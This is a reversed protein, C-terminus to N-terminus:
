IHIPRFMHVVDMGQLPCRKSILSCTAYTRDLFRYREGMNGDQLVRVQLLACVQCWIVDMVSPLGCWFRIINCGFVGICIGHGYTGGVDRFPVFDFVKAGVCEGPAVVDFLDPVCPGM